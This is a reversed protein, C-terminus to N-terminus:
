TAGGETQEWQKTTGNGRRGNPGHQEWKAMRQWENRSVIRGTWTRPYVGLGCATGYPFAESAALSPEPQLPAAM